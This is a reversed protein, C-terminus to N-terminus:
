LCGKVRGELAVGALHPGLRGQWVTAGARGPLPKAARLRWDLVVHHLGRTVLSALAEYLFALLIPSALLTRARGFVVVRANSFINMPVLKGRRDSGYTNLWQGLYCTRSTDSVLISTRVGILWLEVSCTFLILVRRALFAVMPREVCRKWTHWIPPCYPSRHFAPAM